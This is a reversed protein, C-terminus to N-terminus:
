GFALYAALGGLVALALAGLTMATTSIGHGGHREIAHVSQSTSADISAEGSGALARGFERMSAYRQAPEKRMAKLVVADVWEPVERALM